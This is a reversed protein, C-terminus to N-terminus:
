AGCAERADFMANGVQHIEKTPLLTIGYQYFLIQLFYKFRYSFNLVM